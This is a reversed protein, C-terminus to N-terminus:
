KRTGTDSPLQFLGFSVTLSALAPGNKLVILYLLRVLVFMSLRTIEMPQATMFYVILVYVLPYIIQFPMDAMVKAWYYSKMSYWYNLHERKFTAMEMPFTMVTPMMATFMSFLMCFFLMASNNYVQIISAPTPSSQGVFLTVLNPSKQFNRTSLIRKFNASIFPSKKPEKFVDSKM